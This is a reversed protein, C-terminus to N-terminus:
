VVGYSYGVGSTAGSATTSTSKTSSKNTFASFIGSILDGIGKNVEAESQSLQAAVQGWQTAAQLLTATDDSGLGFVSGFTGLYNQIQALFINTPMAEYTALDAKIKAPILVKSAEDTATQLELATKLALTQAPVLENAAKAQAIATKAEELRQTTEAQWAAKDEPSLARRANEEATAATALAERANASNQAYTVAKDYAGLRAEAEAQARSGALAGLASGGGALGRAAAQSQLEGQAQRYARDIADRAVGTYAQRYKALEEPGIGLAAGAQGLPSAMVNTAEPSVGTSAVAPPASVATTTVVPTTGATTTDVPQATVSPTTTPVTTSVSPAPTETPVTNALPVTVEAPTVESRTVYQAVLGAYQPYETAVMNAFGPIKAALRALMASAYTRGTAQADKLLGPLDRVSDGYEARFEPDANLWGLVSNKDYSAVPGLPSASAAATGQTATGGTTGTSTGTTTAPVTAVDPNGSIYDKIGAYLQAIKKATDGYQSEYYAPVPEDHTWGSLARLARDYAGFDYSAGPTFIGLNGGTKAALTALLNFGGTNKLGQNQTAGFIAKDLLEQQKKEATSSGGSGGFVSGLVKGALSGWDFVM